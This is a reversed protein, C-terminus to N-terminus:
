LFNTCKIHEMLGRESSFVRNRKELEEQREVVELVDRNSLICEAITCDSRYALSTKCLQGRGRVSGYKEDFSM